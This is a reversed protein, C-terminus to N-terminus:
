RESNTRKYELYSYIITFIVTILTPVLIFVLFLNPFWMGLLLIIATAQFLKGGVRHTKEWIADSSLTWPNRIGMFWNRKLKKLFAGLLFWLIAM